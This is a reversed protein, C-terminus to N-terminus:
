KESRRAFQWCSANEHFFTGHQRLLRGRPVSGEGQGIYQLLAMVASPPPPYVTSDSNPSQRLSLDVVVDVKSLHTSADGDATTPHRAVKGM